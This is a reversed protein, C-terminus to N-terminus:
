TTWGAPTSTGSTVQIPVRELGVIPSLAQIFVEFETPGVPLASLDIPDTAIDQYSAGVGKRRAYITVRDDKSAALLGNTVPTEVKFTLVESSEGEVLGSIPWYALENDQADYIM